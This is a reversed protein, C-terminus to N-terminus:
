ISSMHARITIINSRQLFLYDFDGQVLLCLHQCSIGFGIMVNYVSFNGVDAQMTTTGLDGDWSVELGWEDPVAFFDVFLFPNTYVQIALDHNITWNDSHLLGFLCLSFLHIASYFLLCCPEESESSNHYISKWAQSSFAGSKLGRWAARREYRGKLKM